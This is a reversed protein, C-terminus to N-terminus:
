FLGGSVLALATVVVPLLIAPWVSQNMSDRRYQMEANVQEPTM